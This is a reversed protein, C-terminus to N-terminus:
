CTRLGEREAAGKCPRRARQRSRFKPEAAEPCTNAQPREFRRARYRHGRRPEPTNIAGRKADEIPSTPRTKRRSEQKWFPAKGFYTNSSQANRRPSLGAKPAVCGGSPHSPPPGASLKIFLFIMRGVCALDSPAKGKNPGCSAM